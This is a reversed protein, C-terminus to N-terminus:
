RNTYTGTTTGIHCRCYQQCCNTSNSTRKRIAIPQQQQERLTAELAEIVRAERVRLLKLESILLAIDNNTMRIIHHVINDINSRLFENTEQEFACSQFCHQLHYFRTCYV